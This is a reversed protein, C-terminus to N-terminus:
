VYWNHIQNSKQCVNTKNKTYWQGVQNMYLFWLIEKKIWNFSELFLTMNLCGLEPSLPIFRLTDALNFSDLNLGLFDRKYILTHDIAYKLDSFYWEKLLPQM